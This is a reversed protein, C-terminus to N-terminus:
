GAERAGRFRRNVLQFALYSDVMRTRRIDWEDRAVAIEIGTTVPRLAHARDTVVSMGHHGM